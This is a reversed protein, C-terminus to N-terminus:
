TVQPLRGYAVLDGRYRAGGRRHDELRVSAQVRAMRAQYDSGAENQRRPGGGNAGVIAKGQPAIVLVVHTIRERTGYVALDGALVDTEEVEACRVFLDRATMDPFSVGARRLALLVFGSCDLGADKAPDNGAWWYPVGVLQLAEFVIAKRLQSASM